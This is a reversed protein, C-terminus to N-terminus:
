LEFEKDIKKLLQNLAAIKAELAAYAIEADQNFLLEESENMQQLKRLILDMKTLIAKSDYPMTDNYRKLIEIKINDCMEFMGEIGAKAQFSRAQDSIGRDILDLQRNSGHLFDNMKTQKFNSKHKTIIEKLEIKVANLVNDAFKRQNKIFHELDFSKLELDDVRDAYYEIKNKPLSYRKLFFFSEKDRNTPHGVIDNRTERIQKNLSFQEFFTNKSIDKSTFVCKYIEFLADQQVYLAQLLGYVFLTARNSFFDTPIEFYHDIAKQSDDITDLCVQFKPFLRKRNNFLISYLLENRVVESLNNTKKYISM